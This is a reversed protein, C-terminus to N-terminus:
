QEPDDPLRPKALGRQGGEEILVPQLPEFARGMRMEGRYYAFQPAATQEVKFRGGYEISRRRISGASGDCGSGCFRAARRIV